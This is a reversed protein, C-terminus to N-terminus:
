LSEIISKILESEYGKRYAYSYLKNFLDYQNKAKFTRRKALLLTKLTEYYEEEDIEELGKNILYQSIERQKLERVIKSKGWKNIRFKGRVYSLVFREENLFGETILESIIEDSMDADVNMKKLKDSVEMHCRDRYACYHRIKELYKAKQVDYYSNIDESM